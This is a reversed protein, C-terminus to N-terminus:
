QIKNLAISVEKSVVGHGAPTLHLNGPFHSPYENFNNYTTFAKVINLCNLRNNNCLKLFVSQQTNSFKKVWQGVEIDDFVANHGFATHASPIYLFLLAAGYDDALEKISMIPPEWLRYVDDFSITDEFIRQAFFVEDRDVNDINYKEFRGDINRRFKFNYDKTSLSFEDFVPDIMRRKKLVAFVVNPLYFRGLTQTLARSLQFERPLIDIKNSKRYYIIADRLDNGEYLGVILFKSSPKIVRKMILYYDHLGKGPVGYNMRTIDRNEDITVQHPWSDEPSTSTCYTFSDGFSSITVGSTIEQRNCFGNNYYSYNTAGYNIDEPSSISAITKPIMLTTPYENETGAEKHSQDVAFGRKLAIARRVPTDPFYYLVDESIYLSYGWCIVELLIVTICISLVALLTKM